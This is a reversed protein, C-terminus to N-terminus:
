SLAGFGRDDDSKVLRLAKNRNEVRRLMFLARLVRKSSFRVMVLLITMSWVDNRRRPAKSAKSTAEACTAAAGRNQVSVPTVNLSPAIALPYM